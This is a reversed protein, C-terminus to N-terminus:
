NVANLKHIQARDLQIQGSETAGTGGFDDILDVGLQIDRRYTANSTPTGVASGPGEQANLAPQSAKVEPDMPTTMIVNYWGGTTDGGIRDAAPIQNGVGPAFEQVIALSNGGVAAGNVELTHTWDFALTKARLRMLCQTNANKTATIHFKVKYLKGPEVRAANQRTTVTRPYEDTGGFMDYAVIGLRDSEVSLTNMGIGNANSAVAAQGGGTDANTGNFKLVQGTWNNNSSIGAVTQSGNGFDGGNAGGVWSKILGTAATVPSLSPGQDAVASAPYHGIQSETMALSGNVAPGNDYLEFARLYAENAANTVLRPTDPPDLDVKYISPTGPTKNPQIDADLTDGVIGDHSVVILNATIAFRHAVRMRLSPVQNSAVGTQGSAYMMFKARVVKGTGIAAYNLSQSGNSGNTIWGFTAWNSGPDAVTNALLATNGADYTSTQSPRLIPVQDFPIWGNAPSTQTLLDDQVLTFQGASSTLTDSTNDITKVIINKL